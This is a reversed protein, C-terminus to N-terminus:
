GYTDRISQIKLQENDIIISTENLIWEFSM